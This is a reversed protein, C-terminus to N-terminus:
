ISELTPPAPKRFWPVRKAWLRLAQWHIRAVVGFTFLPHGLFATLVRGATLPAPTGSVATIILTDSADPGDCYDIRATAGREHQDFRFRYHGRVECFPSVHLRKDATLWQEPGIAGRDAATLVYDHREGFTNNVEAIVARLAGARDHCFWLSIPNFVYGLLRPFTQLVIEGDVATIGAAALRARAWGALDSGDRPGYDGAHFSLLNFRERSLWRNPLADLRSLPVRLFFVPYSFRHARPRLRQHMVRGVCIEPMTPPARSAITM